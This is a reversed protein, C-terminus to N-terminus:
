VHVPEQRLAVVAAAATQASRLLASRSRLARDYSGAGLAQAGRRDHCITAVVPIQLEGAVEAVTYPDREGVLLAALTRRGSPGLTSMLGRTMTVSEFTSRLVVLVTDAATLLATAEHRAGHRGLDVVVDLEHADALVQLDKLLEAWRGSLAAAGAPDPLGALLWRGEGTLALLERELRQGAPAAASWSLLGRGDGLGHRQFASAPGGGAVDADVLLVRRGPVASPWVVTLALACTSVGPSGKAATLAVLAM